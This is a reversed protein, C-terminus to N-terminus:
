ALGDLFTQLDLPLPSDFALREGTVPHDFALRRAHLFPRGLAIAPRSGGYRPDGAVPHGIAALHVRIQHTRGTELRCEVLSLPVPETFRKEVVYRTRADRGDASVAMRTRDGGSRGIPADIVGQNTEIHGLVVAIYRREVDRRQLQEVLSPYAVASRAVVVLGSTGSDLRHVIGPRSAEGVAAIEPYRALLGSVLTGADNGAGPHVVLHPPKDIVVVHDDEHVVGFEVDPDALVARQPRLEPVDVELVQGAVVKRSRNRVTAGDLRVAGDDVLGGATARTLQTVMAVVRDLREGALAEPIEERM